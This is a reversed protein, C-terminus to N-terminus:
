LWYDGKTLDYYDAVEQATRAVDEIIFDSAYIPYSTGSSERGPWLVFYGINKNTNINTTKVWASTGNRYFTLTGNTELTIIRLDYSSTSIRQSRDYSFSPFDTYIQVDWSWNYVQVDGLAGGSSAWKCAVFHPRYSGFATGRCWLSYTFWKSIDATLTTPVQLYSRIYAVDISAVEDNVFTTSVSWGNDTLNNLNWSADALDSRLPYYAVTNAGPTWGGWGWEPRVQNTGKYVAKVNHSVGNSDVYIIWSPTRETLTM